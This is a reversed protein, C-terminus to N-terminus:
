GLDRFDRDQRVSILGFHVAVEKGSHADAAKALLLLFGNRPGRRLLLGSM